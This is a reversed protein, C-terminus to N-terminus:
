ADRWLEGFYSGKWKLQDMIQAGDLVVLLQIM